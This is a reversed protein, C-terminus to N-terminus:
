EGRIEELSFESNPAISNPDLRIATIIHGKWLPHASVDLIVDHFEGDPKISFRIVKDEAFNPSAETAWYFQGNGNVTTRLRIRIRKVKDPPVRLLPRILYPDNGTIHGKLQGSEVRLNTVDNAAIWGELNADFNFRIDERIDPLLRISKVLSFPRVLFTQHGDQLSRISLMQTGADYFWGEKDRLEEETKVRALQRGNATVETPATATPLLVFGPQGKPFFIVFHLEKRELNAKEVIGGSSIPIRVGDLRLTFTKPEENRGLFAYLNKLIQRPAFVWKVKRGDIASIADPWLAVDEGDTEQQHCASVTVGEAIREWTRYDLYFDPLQRNPQNPLRAPVSILRSVEYPKDGLAKLEQALKWVAYAYRLGNWQVARGFWSGKFWTAGFVPISAYRMFPLDPANWAYLFPLGCRAWRIAQELYRQKGTARYGEIYADVADAAALIDPTHVPIEWVQAARPVSFQEMFRLAKEGAQLAIEDGTLRAFRLVEYANRACTGVEVANDPGLLHYDMGKFVGTDKRDADFRWEGESGQSALLSAVRPLFGRILVGFPGARQLGCDEAVPILAGMDQLREACRRRIDADTALITGMWLDYLFNQPRAPRSIIPHGRKSTWWQKTEPIWLGELYGRMSFTVEAELSGRPYPLPEPIGRRKLWVDIATLADTAQGDILLEAELRLPTKGDWEYPQSAERRNEQVWRPVSPLFLGMLHANRGEFYDPSAFVVAPRDNKGDWKQHVDWLLGVTLGDVYVGIAPVTIKHPHPVYRVRDPHDRAIDLDSSSVEDNILWELGPFIAEQKRKGFSGEGVYLMPGEFALLKRARDCRLSYCATIITENPQLRFEAMLEWQAADKDREQARFRLGANKGELFPEADRAYLPLEYREGQESQTVIRALFPMRAAKIWKNEQNAQLEAIGFGFPNRTFILRVKDNCLLAYNGKVETGFRPHALLTPFPQTALLRTEVRGGQANGAKVEVRATVPRLEKLRVKWNLSTKTQPALLSLRKTLGDLVALGDVEITAELDTVFAHGSNQLWCRLIVEDQPSIIFQEPELMLLQLEPRYPLTLADDQEGARLNVIFASAKKREGVVTWKLTATEDPPLHPLSQKAEGIVRLGESVGLLVSGQLLPADGINVVKARVTCRYGPSKTDEELGVEKLLVWPGVQPVYKVDDLLLEGARGVIRAAVHVWKVKPNGTYDYKLAGLHWKGDGIHHAPVTFVARPEGTDELPRASMPIIYINLQTGEYASVAKYWFLIGGKLQSLMAGRQGSHPQWARNLGTEVTKTKQTRVMRLSYKGSHADRSVVVTEGVPAWDVPFGDPGLEEFGGNTVPNQEQGLVPLYLLWLVVFLWGSLFWKAM